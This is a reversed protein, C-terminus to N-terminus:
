VREGWEGWRWESELLTGDSLEWSTRQSMELMGKGRREKGGRGEKKREERGEGKSGKEEVVETM